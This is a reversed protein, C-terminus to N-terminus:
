PMVEEHNHLDRVENAIREKIEKTFPWIANKRINCPNCAPRLNDVTHSGGRALPQVHDWVVASSDLITECIWCQQSYEVFLASYEEKSIEAVQTTVKLARRKREHRATLERRYAAFEPDFAIRQKVVELRRTKNKQHWNYQFSKSWEPHDEHYKRTRAIVKEPDKKYTEKSRANNCVRCIAMKTGKSVNRNQFADIPKEEGCSTCQKM